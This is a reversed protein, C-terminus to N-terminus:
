KARGVAALILAAAMGASGVMVGYRELVGAFIALAEAMGALNSLVLAAFMLESERGHAHQVPERALRALRFVPVLYELGDPGRGALVRAPMELNVMLCGSPQSRINRSATEGGM